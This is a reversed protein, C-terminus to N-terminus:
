ARPFSPLLRAHIQLYCAAREDQNLDPYADCHATYAKDLAEALGPRFEPNFPPPEKPAPRYKKPYEELKLGGDKNLLLYAQGQYTIEAVTRRDEAEVVFWGGQVTAATGSPDFRFKAKV